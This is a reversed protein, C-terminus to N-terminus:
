TDEDSLSRIFNTSIYYTGNTVILCLPTSLARSNGHCCPLATEVWRLKLELLHCLDPLCLISRRLLRTVRKGLKTIWDGEEGVQTVCSRRVISISPNRPSSKPHHGSRSSWGLHAMGWVGAQRLKGAIQVKFGCEQPHEKWDRQSQCRSALGRAPGYCTLGMAPPFNRCKRIIKLADRCMQQSPWRRGCSRLTLSLLAPPKMKALSSRLPTRELCDSEVLCGWLSFIWKLCFHLERWCYFELWM